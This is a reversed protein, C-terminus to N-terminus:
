WTQRWCGALASMKQIGRIPIVVQIFFHWWFWWGLNLEEFGLCQLQQVDERPLTKGVSGSRSVVPSSSRNISAWSCRLCTWFVIIPVHSRFLVSHLLIFCFSVSHFLIFCFLVHSVALVDVDALIYSNCPLCWCCLIEALKGTTEQGTNSWRESTTKGHLIKAKHADPLLFTELVAVLSKPAKKPRLHHKHPACLTLAQPQVFRSNTSQTAFWGIAQFLCSSCSPTAILLRVSAGM